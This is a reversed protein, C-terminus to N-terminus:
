PSKPDTRHHITAGRSKRGSLSAPDGSYELTAGSSLDYKLSKRADVAAHSSGSLRLDVDQVVLGALGLRSTGGAELVASDAKGQLTASSAGGLNLSVSRAEVPGELRSAGSCRATFPQDSRVTLRASSAGSLEIECQKLLFEGLKLQSAGSALLRTGGASGVLTLRSAGSVNIDAGGVEISGDISSAGHLGLKFDKESRFGKVTAKSAGGAELGDLEPLVVDVTLPEKLRYQRHPELGVKLTKGEKFVRLFQTVNDDCSTAVKYKDGKSIQARFTSGIAVESFDAIEWSKSSAHGSGIVPSDLPLGGSAQAASSARTDSAAPRAQGPEGALAAAFPGAPQGPVGKLAAAVCLATVVLALVTTAQLRSVRRAKTAPTPRLAASTGFRQLDALHHKLVHAVENASSYREGPQKALLRDIVDALWDPVDPNVGRLPRPRDDCVRRLVAPTSDARFPPHGTCMFYMVGGLSFLDSRHDVPEGRAQEPSMYQPTGAVVGSQTQSADDVARALGFDSLKVREVGNELLINSPKVDRHVIGQEHAAALGNAAQMGVRLVEKVSLPGDRDVREQLSRGAICPMVLYPLGNWSDVSHIAVVNEHVVAAVARAERAFRARAAASVALEAALVKIAVYRSLAPDIAKLVVGFAGRGLVETVEYPGLRGLSGPGAPPELFDLRALGEPGQTVKRGAGVTVTPLAKSPAAPGLASALERLELCLRSGAALRQLAQRCSDCRDLHEALRGTDPEPLSDDLFSRLRSANCEDWTLRSAM